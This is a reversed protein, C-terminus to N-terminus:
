KVTERCSTGPLPKLEQKCKLCLYRRRRRMNRYVRARIPHQRGPCGCVAWGLIKQTRKFEDVDLSHTRTAEFGLTNMIKKWGIRHFYGNRGYVIPAIIHSLEHALTPPLEEPYKKLLRENLEIRAEEIYARGLVSRMRRNLRVDIAPPQGNFKKPLLPSLRALYDRLLEDVHEFTVTEAM